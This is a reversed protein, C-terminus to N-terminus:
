DKGQISQSFFGNTVMLIFKLLPSLGVGSDAKQYEELKKRVMRHLDFIMQAESGRLREQLVGLFQKYAEM